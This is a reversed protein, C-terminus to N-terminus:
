RVVFFFYIVGAAFLLAAVIIAVDTMSLSRGSGPMALAPDPVNTMVTSGPKQPSVPAPSGRPAAPAAAGIMALDAASPLAANAPPPKPGAPGPPQGTSPPVGPEPPGSRVERRELLQTQGCTACRTTLAELTSGPPLAAFQRQALEDIPTLVLDFGCATCRATWALQNALAVPSLWVPEKVGPAVRVRVRTGARLESDHHATNLLAGEYADLEPVARDLRVWMLEIKQSAVLHFRAQVDDRFQPHLKGALRPDERWPRPPVRFFEMWTPEVPLGLAAVQEPALPEVRVGAGLRITDDPRGTQAVEGPTPQAAALPVGKASPGAQADEYTYALFRLDNLSVFAWAM